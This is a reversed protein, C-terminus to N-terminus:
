ELRKFNTITQIRLAGEERKRKESQHVVLLLSDIQKPNILLWVSCGAAINTCDTHLEALGRPHKSNISM